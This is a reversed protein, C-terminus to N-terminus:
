LKAERARREVSNLRRDAADVVFVRHLLREEGEALYGQQPTSRYLVLRNDWVVTTGVDYDVCLTNQPTLGYSMIEAYMRYVILSHSHTRAPYRSNPLIHVQLRCGPVQIPSGPPGRRSKRSGLAM